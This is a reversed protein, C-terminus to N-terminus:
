VNDNEYEVFNHYDATFKRLPHTRDLLCFSDYDDGQYKRTHQFVESCEPRNARYYEWREQQNLGKLKHILSFEFNNSLNPLIKIQEVKIEGSQNTSLYSEWLKNSFYREIHKRFKIDPTQNIYSNIGMVAKVREEESLKLFAKYGEAKSGRKGYVEWLREYEDSYLNNNEKNEKGKREKITLGVKEDQKDTPLGDSLPQKEEAKNGKNKKGNQKAIFSKYEREELRKAVSTSSINGNEIIFLSFKTLISEILVPEVRYDYAIQEIDYNISNNNVYLDEIIAWFLGYGLYGHVRILSKIKWDSRVNYDHSFYFTHNM